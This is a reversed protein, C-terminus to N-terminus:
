GGAASFGAGGDWGDNKPVAGEDRGATSVRLDRNPPELLM